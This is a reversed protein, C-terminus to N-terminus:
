ERRVLRTLMGVLRHVLERGERWHPEGIVGERQLIDLVAASEAASRLAMRYFRSKEKPSFEGGGEAINLTVSFAARKLQDALESHGRPLNRRVAIMLSVLDLSVRYADLRDQPLVVLMDVCYM